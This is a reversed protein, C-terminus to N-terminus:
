AAPTRDGDGPSKPRFREQESGCRRHHFRSSIASPCSRQTTRRSARAARRACRRRASPAAVPVRAAEDRRNRRRCPLPWTEACSSRAAARARPCRRARVPARPRGPPARAPEAARGRTLPGFRRRLERCRVFSTFPTSAAARRASTAAPQPLPCALVAFRHTAGGWIPEPNLVSKQRCRTGSDSNWGPPGPLSPIGTSSWGRNAGAEDTSQSAPRSGTM